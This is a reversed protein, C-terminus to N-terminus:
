FCNLQINPIKTKVITGVLTPGLAGLAMRRHTWVDPTVRDWFEWEDEFCTPIAKALDDDLIHLKKKQSFKGFPSV